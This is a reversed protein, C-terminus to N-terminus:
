PHSGELYRFLELPVDTVYRAVLQKELLILAMRLDNITSAIVEGSDDERLTKLIAEADSAFLADPPSYFLAGPRRLSLYASHAAVPRDTKLGVGVSPSAARAAAHFAGNDWTWALLTVREEAGAKKVEEVILRAYEANSVITQEKVDLYLRHGSDRTSELAQTLTPVPEGAFEPGYSRGADLLRLESATMGEVAGSGTTTRDVTPDHMLVPISDSSLRVDVESAAVGSRSALDLAAVTNEPAFVGAGRHAIGRGSTAAAGTLVHASGSARGNLTVDIRTYNHDPGATLSIVLLTDGRFRARELELSGTRDLGFARFRCNTEPARGHLRIYLDKAAAQESQLWMAQPYVEASTHAACQLDIRADVASEPSLPGGACAAVLAWGLTVKLAMRILRRHPDM